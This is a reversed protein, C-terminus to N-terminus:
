LEDNDDDHDPHDDDESDPIGDGDDDSDDDDNIGDNDDDSDDSITTLIPNLDLKQRWRTPGQLTWALCENRQIIHRKFTRMINLCIQSTNANKM